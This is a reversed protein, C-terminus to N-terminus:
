GAYIMVSGNILSDFEHKLGFMAIILASFASFFPLNKNEIEKVKVTLYSSLGKVM